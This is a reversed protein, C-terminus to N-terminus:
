NKSFIKHVADNIKKLFERKQKIILIFYLLTVFASIINIVKYAISPHQHSALQYVNYM